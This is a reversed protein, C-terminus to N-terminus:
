PPSWGFARAACARAFGPYRGWNCYVPGLPLRALGIGAVRAPSAMRSPLPQGKDALLKRLAPTDTMGLVLCLVDVGLPKLEAWLSEGFCLEFAKAGSYTAM